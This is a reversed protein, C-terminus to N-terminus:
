VYKWYFGGATKQKNRCVATISTPSNLGVDKAAEVAHEYERIVNGDDDLKAVRRWHKKKLNIFKHGTKTNGTIRGNEAAHQSNRKHTAWELNEVKNNLGNFDLHNVVPLNNPNPIFALAVLRHIGTTRHLGNKMALQAKLYGGRPKVNLFGKFYESFVRGDKFIRYNPYRDLKVWGTEEVRPPVVKKEAYKWLFGGAINRNGSCVSGIHKIGLLKEAESAGGEFTRIIKKTKPDLQHVPKCQGNFREHFIGDKSWSYGGAYMSKGSLVTQICGNSVGTKKSADTVTPFSEIFEGNKTFQWVPRARSKKGNELAHENNRKVTAWELNEIRNNLKNSDKHNIIPLNNPNPLFLEGMLRNVLFPRRIGNGYFSVTYYGDKNLTKSLYQNIYLSYIEGDEQVVYKEFDPHTKCNLYVLSAM